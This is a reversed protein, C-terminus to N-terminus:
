VVAYSTTVHSSNLRTSKRDQEAGDRRVPGPHYKGIVLFHEEDNQRGAGEQEHAQQDGQLVHDVTLDLGALGLAQFGGSGSAALSIPLADHLPLPTVLPAPTTH